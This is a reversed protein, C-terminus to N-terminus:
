SAPVLADIDRLVESYAIGPISGLPLAQSPELRAGAPVFFFSCCPNCRGPDLLAGIEDASLPDADKAAPPPLAEPPLLWDPRPM